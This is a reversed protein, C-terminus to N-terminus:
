ETRLKGLMERASAFQKAAKELHVIAEERTRPDNALLAGLILHGQASGQDLRLGERVTEIAADRKGMRMQVWALDCLILSTPGGIEMARKLEGAAEPYRGTRMYQVGLNVHAEAYEPSEAVARELAAAAKAYNGSESFKQAEVFSRFAKKSPPNLLQRMSITRGAGATAPRDPMRVTVPTNRAAITVSQECVRDGYLTMVVAAYEGPEVHNIEFSGDSRVEV